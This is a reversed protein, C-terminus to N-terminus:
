ILWRRLALNILHISEYRRPDTIPNMTNRQMTTWLNEGNEELDEMQCSWNTTRPRLTETQQKQYIFINSM